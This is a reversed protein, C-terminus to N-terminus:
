KKKIRDRIKKIARKELLPKAQEGRLSTNYDAGVAGWAEFSVLDGADLRSPAKVKKRAYGIAIAGQIEVNDPVDLDSSLKGPKPIAIWCTALGKDAAALLINEVASAVAQKALSAGTTPFRAEVAGTLSCVLIVVPAGEVWTQKYSAKAIKNKTSSERIIIFRWPQLNNASPAWRAADILDYIDQESVNKARFERISRRKKAIDLFAM